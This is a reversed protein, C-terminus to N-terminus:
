LASEGERRVQLQDTFVVFTIVNLVGPVQELVARNNLSHTFFAMNFIYFVQVCTLSVARFYFAQWDCKERM